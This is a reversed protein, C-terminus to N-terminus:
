EIIVTHQNRQNLPSLNCATLILVSRQPISCKTINHGCCMYNIHSAIHMYGLKSYLNIVCLMTYYKVTQGEILKAPDSKNKRSHTYVSQSSNM